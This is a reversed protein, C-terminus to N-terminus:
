VQAAVQFVRSAQARSSSTCLLRFDLSQRLGQNRFEETSLLGPGFGLWGLGLPELDCRRLLVLCVAACIWVISLCLRSAPASPGPLDRVPHGSLSDLHTIFDWDVTDVTDSSIAPTGGAPHGEARDAAQDLSAALGRLARAVGRVAEILILTTTTPASMCTRRSAHWLLPRLLGTSLTGQLHILKFLLGLFGFSFDLPM